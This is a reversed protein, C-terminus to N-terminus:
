YVFCYCSVLIRIFHKNVQFSTPICHVQLKEQKVRHALREVSHIITSGSGIGIVQKDQSLVPTM